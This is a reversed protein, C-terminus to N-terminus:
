NLNSIENLYDISNKLYNKSEKIIEVIEETNISKMYELFEIIITQRQLEYEKIIETVDINEKGQKQLRNALDKLFQFEINRIKKITIFYIDGDKEKKNNLHSKQEDYRTFIRLLYYLKYVINVWKGSFKVYFDVNEDAYEKIRYSQSNFDFEGLITKGLEKERNKIQKVYSNSVQVRLEKYISAIDFTYKNKEIFSLSQILESFSMLPDILIIGYEFDIQNEKIIEIAKKFEILRFGKQYRALQSEVGSELGIFIKALGADKLSKLVRIKEKRLQENDHISFISKVCANMRFNIKIGANKINDCLIQIRNIGELNNFGYFDEDAFTVNQIGLEELNKLDSIISEVPRPRWKDIRSKAGLFENCSCISCNGYSCGRSGEVYVEYGLDAFKKTNRRDPLAILKSDLYVKNSEIIEELEKYYINQVQNLSISANVYKYLGELVIEGEGIAIIIDDFYNELIFKGSFNPIANGLVITPRYEKSFSEKILEYLIILQNFTYLKVSIGILGPKETKIFHIFQESTDIQLDFLRIDIDSFQNQLYGAIACIGHAEGLIPFKDSHLAVLGVLKKNM